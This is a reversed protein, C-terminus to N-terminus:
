LMPQDCTIMLRVLEEAGIGRTQIIEGRLEASDHGTGLGVAVNNANRAVFIVVPTNETGNLQRTTTSFNANPFYPSRKM